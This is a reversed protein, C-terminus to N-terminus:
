RGTPQPRPLKARLERRCTQGGCRRLWGLRKALYARVERYRPDRHRSHLEHRDRRLDYLERQGGAYRVYKYPGVRIGRYDRAPAWISASARQNRAAGVDVTRTFAELLLPRRSRKAPNRAYPLLSRGDVPMSPTAGAIELITPALDLNAVLEASSSGPPIGPGRVLLPVHVSPEYPLFKERQLRHEGQFFGNDSTFFVYTSGLEGSAELASVIRGVGEDVARLSEVEKQWEEQTHAISTAGLKGARRIFRPKDSVDRENFGPPRPLPAGTWSGYHRPAPEPGWPPQFDGHPAVYDVSLFFPGGPASAAIQDLARQTLVDSQYDCQDHPAPDGPCGVPDKSAYGLDGFPGEVTGNVNLRYGYFYHTSDEGVLTEWDTWGPPVETPDSFPPQGYFNLFKGVHITRYGADRLWVALNNLKDFAGYGGGYPGNGLVGNNHAYRGSLLTARSPCCLPDSVYYRGFSIGAGAILGLTNPMAAQEPLGPPAFRAYLESMNQDDTQIVVVNAREAAGAQTTGGQGTVALSGV